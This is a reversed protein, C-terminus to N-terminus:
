AQYKETYRGAASMEPEYYRQIRILRQAISALSDGKKLGYLALAADGILEGDAFDPLAFTRSTINAKMQCWVENRAQGGSLTYMPSFGSAAELVDCGRRIRFGLAEVFARGQGAFTAPYDSKPSFPEAAIRKMATSYDNGLFGHAILFSSFAAGSSPIVSSLNWLHPIISPLLLTKEASCPAAMCVNLGESSGARDCATGATLTGTGILAAIFDPVGAIVPIGCFHGIVTGAATFPPLLDILRESEQQLLAEAVRVLAGTSWYAAEYRPDPLSTIAIGTLRYALYEQGSFLLATRGFVEPYAAYFAAIRPLFISQGGPIASGCPAAENWLFLYDHEAKEIIADARSATDSRCSGGSSSCVGIPVSHQPVAVLTPGNGSICVADIAYETCIKEWASFFARVWDAAHVPHPFAIRIFAPVAGEETVLAAKLSSTGIDACFIGSQM